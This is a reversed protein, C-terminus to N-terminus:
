VFVLPSNVFLAREGDVGDLEPLKEIVEDLVGMAEFVARLMPLQRRNFAGIVTRKGVVFQKMNKPVVRVSARVPDHASRTTIPTPSADPPHPLHSSYRVLLRERRVLRHPVSPGSACEAAMCCAVARVPCTPRSAPRSARPPPFPTLGASPSACRVTLEKIQMPGKSEKTIGTMPDCEFKWGLVSASCPPLTEGSARRNTESSRRKREGAPPADGGGGAAADDKAESSGGCGM